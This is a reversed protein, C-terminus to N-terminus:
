PVRVAVNHAFTPDRTEKLPEPFLAVITIRHSRTGARQPIPILETYTEPRYIGRASVRRQDAWAQVPSM